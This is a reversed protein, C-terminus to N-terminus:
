AHALTKELDRKRNFKPINDNGIKTIQQGYDIWAVDKGDTYISVVNSSADLIEVGLVDGEKNLDVFLWDNVRTTSVTKGTKIKIYKVDLKKNYDIKM